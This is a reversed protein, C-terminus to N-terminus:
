RPPLIVQSLVIMFFAGLSVNSGISIATRELRISAIMRSIVFVTVLALRDATIL